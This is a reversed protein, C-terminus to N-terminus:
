GNEQELKDFVYTAIIASEVDELDSGYKWATRLTEVDVKAAEALGPIGTDLVTLLGALQQKTIKQPNKFWSTLWLKACAKEALLLQTITASHEVFDPVFTRYTM